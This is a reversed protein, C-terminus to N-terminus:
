PPLFSDCHKSLSPGALTNEVRFDKEANPNVLFM